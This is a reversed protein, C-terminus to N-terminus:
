RKPVIIWQEEFTVDPVSSVLITLQVTYTGATAVDASSPQYLCTAQGIDPTFTGTLPTSTQTNPNYLVGTVTAGSPFVYATGDARTFTITIGSYRSTQVWNPFAM